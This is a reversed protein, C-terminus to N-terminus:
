CILAEMMRAMQSENQHTNLPLKYYNWYLEQWTLGGKDALRDLSYGHNIEAQDEHLLDWKVCQPVENWKRTNSNLVPFARHNTQM